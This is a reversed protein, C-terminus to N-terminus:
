QRFLLRSLHRSVRCQYPPPEPRHADLDSEIVDSPSTRAKGLLAAAIEQGVAKPGTLRATCPRVSRRGDAWFVAAGAAAAGAWPSLSNPTVSIPAVVWFPCLSTSVMPKM